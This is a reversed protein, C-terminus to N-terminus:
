VNKQLLLKNLTLTGAVLHPFRYNFGNLYKLCQFAASTFIRDYCLLFPFTSNNEPRSEELPQGANIERGTSVHTTFYATNM